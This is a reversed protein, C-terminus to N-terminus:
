EMMEIAMEIYEPNVYVNFAEQDPAADISGQEQLFDATDKMIVAFHGPNGTTGFYDDGLLEQPTKWISGQMQEYADAQDIGLADAEIQAGEQPDARYVDGAKVYQVIMGAMLEPYTESFEKRAVVVNATIFGEEAMDASTVLPKGTKYLEGLSPQWSYAAQIDGREWAAVLEATNMDLLQVDDEIGAMKLVNLLIYHATSAFPVAIKQGALDEVTEIGSGDRVALAEISGLIEHIWVMEVDLDLALSIIANTNGMSAVDISGSALAQNAEAGSDFIKYEVEIGMENFYEDFYGQEIALTQDNPVRLIGFNIVEPLEADDSSGGSCAAGSFTLLAVLLLILGKKIQKKM